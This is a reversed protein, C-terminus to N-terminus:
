LFNNQYDQKSEFRPMMERSKASARLFGDRASYGAVTDAARSTQKVLREVSQTHAPYGPLTLPASKFGSLETPSLATTLSPEYLSEATWDILDTYDSAKFNLKPIIFKRTSNEGYEQDGRISLIKEVATTRVQEDSDTLMSLLLCEPHAWYANRSHNKRAIRKVELSLHETLKIQGYLHRPAEGISGKQKLRFWMVTYVVLRLLNM